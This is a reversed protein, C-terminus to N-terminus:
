DGQEEWDELPCWEPTTKAKLEKPKIEGGELHMCYDEEEFPCEKCRSVKIVKM